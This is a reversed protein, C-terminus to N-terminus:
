FRAEDYEIIEESKNEALEKSHSTNLNQLSQLDKKQELEFNKILSIIEENNDKESNSNEVQDNFSKKNEVEVVLSDKLDKKNIIQSLFFGFFSGCVFVVLILVVSM